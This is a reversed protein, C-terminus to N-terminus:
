GRPQVVDDGGLDDDGLANKITERTYLKLNLAGTRKDRTPLFGGYDATSRTLDQPTITIDGGVKMLLHQLLVRMLDSTM